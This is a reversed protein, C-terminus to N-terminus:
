PMPYNDAFLVASPAVVNKWGGEKEPVTGSGERPRHTSAKRGAHALQMGAASAKNM